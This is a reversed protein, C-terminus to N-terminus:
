PDRDNKVSVMSVGAVLQNMFPISRNFPSSISRVPAESALERNSSLYGFARATM